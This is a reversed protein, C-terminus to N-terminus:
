FNVRSSAELHAEGEAIMEAAIELVEALRGLIEDHWEMGDDLLPPKALHEILSNATELFPVAGHYCRAALMAENVADKLADEYAATHGTSQEHLAEHLADIRSPAHSELDRTRHQLSAYRARLATESPNLNSSEEM